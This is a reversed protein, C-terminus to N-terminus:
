TIAFWPVVGRQGEIEVLLWKNPKGLLNDRTGFLATPLDSGTSTQPLEQTETLKTGGASFLGDDKAELANGQEQSVPIVFTPITDGRVAIDHKNDQFVIVNKEAM